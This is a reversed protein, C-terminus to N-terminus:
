GVPAPRNWLGWYETLDDLLRRFQGMEAPKLVYSNVYSDYALSRDTEADSSTMMVVPIARLTSDAKIQRLVELGDIKPLNLDLLVMDPRTRGVFPGEGRLFALAEAGDAVRRTVQGIRSRRLAHEVLQAHDDNDEVLLFSLTSTRNDDAVTSM